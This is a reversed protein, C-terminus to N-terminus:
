DKLASTSRNVHAALGRLEHWAVQGVRNLYFLEYTQVARQKLQELLGLRALKAAAHPLLNIGVGLEHIEPAQEFVSCGIGRKNLMLACAFGGIGGGVIIIQKHKGM